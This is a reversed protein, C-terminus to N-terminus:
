VYKIPQEEGTEYDGGHILFAEEDIEEKGTKTFIKTQEEIDIVKETDAEEDNVVETDPEEVHVEEIETKGFKTEMMNLFEEEPMMKDRAMYNRLGLRRLVANDVKEMVAPAVTFMYKSLSSTNITTLQSVMIKCLTGSTNKFLIDDTSATMIKSSIPIGQIVPVRRHTLETATIILYPHRFRTRRDGNQVLMKSVEEDEDIMWVQGRMFERSDKNYDTIKM